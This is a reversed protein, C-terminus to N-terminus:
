QLDQQRRKWFGFPSRQRKSGAMRKPRSSRGEPGDYFEGDLTPRWVIKDGTYRCNLSHHVSGHLHYIFDWQDTEHVVRPEFVGNKDFGTYAGPLAGLAATDYNLNYVGVDFKERLGGLLERYTEKTPIDTSDLRQSQARMHRALGELLRSLQDMVSIYHECKNEKHALPEWQPPKGDSVVQRLTDGWPAPEMWHALAVMDGLVKEFNLTPRHASGGSHFYAGASCWLKRFYDPLVSGAWEQGWQKMLRDLDALSPMGLPRSSGARLIVLLKNKEKEPTVEGTLTNALTNWV